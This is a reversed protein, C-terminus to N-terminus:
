RGRRKMWARQAAVLKEAASGQAAGRAASYLTAMEVDLAALNPDTCIAREVANSAKACDFSPQAFSVATGLLLFMAAASLVSRFGM